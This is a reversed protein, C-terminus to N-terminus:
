RALDDFGLDRMVQAHTRMRGGKALERRIIAMDRVDEREQPTLIRRPPNKSIKSKTSLKPM